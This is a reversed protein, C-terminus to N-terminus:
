KSMPCRHSFINSTNRQFEPSVELFDTPGVAFKDVIFKSKNTGNEIYVYCLGVTM